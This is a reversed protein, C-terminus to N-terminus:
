KQGEPPVPRKYRTIAGAKQRPAFFPFALSADEQPQVAGLWQESDLQRTVAFGCPIFPTKLFHAGAGKDQRRAVGGDGALGLRQQVPVLAMAEAGVAAMGGLELVTAIAAQAKAAAGLM